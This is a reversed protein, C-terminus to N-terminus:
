AKFFCIEERKMKVAATNLMFAPFNSYTQSQGGVSAQKEHRIITVKLLWGHKHPNQKQNQNEFPWSAFWCPLLQMFALGPFKKDWFVFYMSMYLCPLHLSAMQASAFVWKCPLQACLLQSEARSSYILLRQKSYALSFPFLLLLHLNHTVPSANIYAFINKNPMVRVNHQLYQLFHSVSHFSSSFSHSKKDRRKQYVFEEREFRTISLTSCCHHQLQSGIFICSCLLLIAPSTRQCHPFSFRPM